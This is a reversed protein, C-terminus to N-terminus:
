VYLTKNCSFLASSSSQHLMKICINNVNLHRVLATVYVPHFFLNSALCLSDLHPEFIINTANSPIQGLSLYSMQGSSLYSLQANAESHLHPCIHHLDSNFIMIQGPRFMSLHPLTLMQLSLNLVFVSCITYKDHVLGFNEEGEHVRNYM